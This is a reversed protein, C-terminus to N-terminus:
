QELLDKLRPLEVGSDAVARALNQFLRKQVLYNAHLLDLIEVFDETKEIKRARSMFRHHYFEQEITMYNRLQQLLDDSEM